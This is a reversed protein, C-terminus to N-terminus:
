LEPSKATPSVVPLPQAAGPENRRHASGDPGRAWGGAGRPARGFACRCARGFARRRARGLPSGSVVIAPGPAAGSVVDSGGVGLRRTGSQSRTLCGDWSSEPSPRPLQGYGRANAHLDPGLPPPAGGRGSAPGQGRQDARGWDRWSWAHRFRGRRSGPRGDRRLGDSLGCRRRAM